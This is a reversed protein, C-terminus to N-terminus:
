CLRFCLRVSGFIAAVFAGSQEGEIKISGHKKISGYYLRLLAM